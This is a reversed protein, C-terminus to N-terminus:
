QKRLYFIGILLVNITMYCLFVIISQITYGNCFGIGTILLILGIFLMVAWITNKVLMIIISIAVAIISFFEQM